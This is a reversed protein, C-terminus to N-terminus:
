ERRCAFHTKSARSFANGRKFHMGGAEGEGGFERRGAFHMQPPRSFAAGGRSEGGRRSSARNPSTLDSRRSARDPVALTWISKIVSGAAQSWVKPPTMLIFRVLSRFLVLSTLTCQFPGAEWPRMTLSCARLAVQWVASGGGTHRCAEQAIWIPFETTRYSLSQHTPRFGKVSVMRPKDGPLAEVKRRERRRQERASSQWSAPLKHM